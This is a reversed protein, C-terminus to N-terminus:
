SPISFYLVPFHPFAAPFTTSLTHVALPNCVNMMKLWFPSTSHLYLKRQIMLFIVCRCNLPEKNAALQILLLSNLGPPLLVNLNGTFRMVARAHITVTVLISHCRMHLAVFFLQKLNKLRMVYQLELLLFESQLSSPHSKITTIQNPQHLSHFPFCSESCQAKFSVFFYHHYLNIFMLKRPTFTAQVAVRCNLISTDFHSHWWYQDFTEFWPQLFNVYM